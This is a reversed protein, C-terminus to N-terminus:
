IKFSSIIQNLDYALEAQKEAENSLKNMIISSKDIGKEIDSTKESSNQTMEAMHQIAETVQNITANIEESMASLESSMSNVFDADNSYQQGMKNFGEFQANIDNQMFNILDNSNSSLNDFAKKVKGITVKVSDVAQSSQEALKRVEEAVVAFGKGQEGARAAEIAANLALLNTQEALGLITNAMVAIENVVKGEEIAELILVEKDSYIKRTSDIASKSNSKVTNARNMIELANNTGESAKSSLLVISSDVEEISASIEEAIASNEQVSSNIQKTSSNITEFNSSVEKITSFLTESSNNIHTSNTIINKILNRVNNQANNLTDATQGYEDKRKLDLNISFDYNSLREALTRIKSLATTSDYAVLVGLLITLLFAVISIITYEIKVKNTDRQMYDEALTANDDVIRSMKDLSNETIKLTDEYKAEDKIVGTNIDFTDLWLNFNNEFETYLEFITENTERDKLNDYVFKLPLLKDNALKSDNKIKEVSNKLTERKDSVYDRNSSDKVIDERLISSRLLEKNCNSLLVSTKYVNTYYTDTLMTYVKNINSIGLISLILVSLLPIFVMLFLKTRIKLNKLMNM